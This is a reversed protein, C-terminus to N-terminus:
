PALFSFNDKKSFSSPNSHPYTEGLLWYTHSLMPCLVTTSALTRFKISKVKEMPLVLPGPSLAKELKPSLIRNWLVANAPTFWDAILVRFRTYASFLHHTQLRPLPAATLSRGSAQALAAKPKTVVPISCTLPRATM